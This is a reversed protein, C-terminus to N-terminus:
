AGIKFSARVTFLNTQPRIRQTNTPTSFNLKGYSTFDYGVGLLIRDSMPMDVGVGLNVGTLRKKKKLNQSNLGNFNHQIEWKSSITGVKVYGLSGGMVLGVRVNAGLSDKMEQRTRYAQADNIYEKGKLNSFDATLELGAYIKRAFLKGWGGHLGGNMGTGSLNTDRVTKPQAILQKKVNSNAIVYGTHVGAYFGSIKAEAFSGSNMILAAFATSLLIKRPTM